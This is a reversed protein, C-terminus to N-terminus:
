AGYFAQHLKACVDEVLEQGKDLVGNMAMVVHPVGEYVKEETHVGVKRLRAAYAEGESRLVDLGAYACFAPPCQALIDDSGFIPSAHPETRTAEDPLYRVRYWIMKPAPLAPTIEGFKKWSEYREDATNDTVPVILVQFMIKGLSREAVMQTLVATLNGGASSGGAAIKDVNGGLSKGNALVWKYAEWTDEVAAPYPHEPALRYDVTVTICGGKNAWYTCHVNETNINGLVWGGGHMYLFIPWGGEPADGKPTFVRVAVPPGETETREISYDKTSAVELPESAGPILTGSTRSAEVPQYHVQQQNIIYQNYFAEYQKDLLPIIEPSLPYPPSPM